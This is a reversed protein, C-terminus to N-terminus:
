GIIARMANIHRATTVTPRYDPKLDIVIEGNEWHALRLAYSYLTDGHSVFAGSKAPRQNRFAEAVSYPIAAM